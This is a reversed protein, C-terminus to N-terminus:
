TAGGTISAKNLRSPLRTTQEPQERENAHTYWREPPNYFASFDHKEMGNLFLFGHFRYWKRNEQRVACFSGQFNHM